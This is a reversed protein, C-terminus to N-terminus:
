APKGAAASLPAACVAEACLVAARGGWQVLADCRAADQRLAQPGDYGYCLMEEGLTLGLAAGFYKLCLLSGAFLREGRPRAGVLGAWLQPGTHASHAQGGEDALWFRQARDIFGKLGAPLAYFFIPSALLTLPAARMLAFLAEADDGGGLVCRHEPLSACRGCGVCPRVQFDRLHLLRAAGGAARVGQAFCEALADSNGGARPSCALVLVVNEPQGAASAQASAHGKHRMAM